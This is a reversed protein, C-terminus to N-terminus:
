ICQVTVGPNRCIRFRGFILQESNKLSDDRNMFFLSLHSWLSAMTQRYTQKNQDYQPGREACALQVPISLLRSLHCSTRCKRHIALSRKCVNNCLCLLVHCARQHVLRHCQHSITPTECIALSNAFNNSSLQLSLYSYHYHNYLNEAAFVSLQLKLLM